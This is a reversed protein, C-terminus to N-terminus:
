GKAELWNKGIGVEVTLPVALSAAREMHTKVLAAVEDGADEPAEFVLEDHVTLIM